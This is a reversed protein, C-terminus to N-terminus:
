ETDPPGLWYLHDKGDAHVLEAGAAELKPQRGHALGFVFGAKRLPRLQGREFFVRHQKVVAATGKPIRSIAGGSTPRGHFTQYYMSKSPASVLDLLPGPTPHAALTRVWSPPEPPTAPIPAPLLEFALVAAFAIGVRAPTRTLAHAGLIAAAFGVMLAMRNTIGGLALPPALTTLLEYPMPVPLEHGLVTLREGLGLVLFVALVAWWRRDRGRWLVLAWLSIGIALSKEHINGKVQSWVPKTLEAFRWHPGPVFLSVPDLPNSRPDHAGGVPDAHLTWMVFAVLVGTTALSTAVFPVLARWPPRFFCWLVAGAIVCYYGLYYDSLFVALLALSAAIGRRPTPRELTRWWLLVFLPMWHTSLLNLHGEAHAWRFSSFAFAYGAFLSPWVSKTLHRALAFMTTGSLAFTLLVALNIRVVLSLPLFAVLASTLPHYGHTLLSAGRPHHLGTTHLEFPHEALHWVNWAMLFGDRDDLWFVDGLQTIRPWSLVAFCLVYFAFAAALLRADFTRVDATPPSDM